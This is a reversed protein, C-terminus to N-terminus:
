LSVLILLCWSDGRRPHMGSQALGPGNGLEKVHSLSSERLNTFTVKNEPFSIRKLRCSLM